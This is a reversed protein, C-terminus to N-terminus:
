PRTSSAVHRIIAEGIDDLALVQRVQHTAIAASPMADFLSNARDQALVTGGCHAIARVGAQGDHGMGTLIVALARV